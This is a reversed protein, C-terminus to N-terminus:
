GDVLLMDFAGLGPGIDLAAEDLPTLAFMLDDTLTGGAWVGVCATMALGAVAPWGGLTGFVQRWFPQRVPHPMEAEADALVRAMLGDPLPPTTQRANAFAAALPDDIPPKSQTM